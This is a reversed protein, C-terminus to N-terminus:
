SRSLKDYCDEEMQELVKISKAYLDNKQNKQTVILINKVQKIEEKLNLIKQQLLDHESTM